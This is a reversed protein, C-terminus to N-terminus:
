NQVTFVNTAEIQDPLPLLLSPVARCADSLTFRATVTIEKDDIQMPDVTICPKPNAMIFGSYLVGNDDNVADNFITQRDTADEGVQVQRALQGVAYKLQVFNALVEGYIMVSFILTVLVAAVICFEVAASGRERDAATTPKMAESGVTKMTGGQRM